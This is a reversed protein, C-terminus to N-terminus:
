DWKIREVAVCHIYSRPERPNESLVVQYVSSANDYWIGFPYMNKLRYDNYLFSMRSLRGDQTICRVMHNFTNQDTNDLTLCGLSNVYIGYDKVEFPDFADIIQKYIFVYDSQIWKCIQEYVKNYGEWDFREVTVLATSENQNWQIVNPTSDTYVRKSPLNIM